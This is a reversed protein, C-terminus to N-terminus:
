SSNAIDHACQFVPNLFKNSKSAHDSYFRLTKSSEDTRIYHTEGLILTTEGLLLFLLWCSPIKDM